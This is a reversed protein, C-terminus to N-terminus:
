PCLGAPGPGQSPMGLAAELIQHAVPAAVQAGEGGHEVIVAVAVRPHNAPAFAIFWAHPGLGDGTQATGTKGAVQVGPIQANCGSGGSVVNIMAKVASSAAASSMATSFPGPSDSFATSGNPAIIRKVLIPTPVRGGNAIGETVLLMQLPTVEDDGQGFASSALAVPDFHEGPQRVHSTLVPIDFPIQRGLGFRHAYDLFRSAGLKVGVQAFVMNDSYMFAHLLDVSSVGPPLNNGVSFVHGDITIPGTAATGVFPTSLSEVGSDLAASLTVAKFVSGPAFLGDTARNILPHQPDALLSRWFSQDEGQNPSVLNNVDYYPKSVIALIEGTRPDAVVAASPTDPLAAAAVQQLREDITLTVDDGTVPRHLWSNLTQTWDTGTTQGTLYQDYAAEIGTKGYIDSDYGITQALSPDTYTRHVFGQANVVRGALLVGDRDFIRGRRVRAASIQNRPNDPRATLQGADLVQWYVLDMSILLFVVIFVNSLHRINRNM